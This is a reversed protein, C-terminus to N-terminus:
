TLGHHKSAAVADTRCDVGLKNYISRVHTKVTNVTVHQRRAIESLTGHFELEGLIRLERSTLRVAPASPGAAAVASRAAQEARELTDAVVEWRAHDLDLPDLSLGAEVSTLVWLADRFAHGGTGWTADRPAPM